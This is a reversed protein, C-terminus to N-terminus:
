IIISLTGCCTATGSCDFILVIGNDFALAITRFTPKRM